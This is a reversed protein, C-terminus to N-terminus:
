MGLLEDLLDDSATLPRLVRGASTPRFGTLDGQPRLIETRHREM